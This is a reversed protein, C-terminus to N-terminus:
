QLIYVSEFVKSQLGTLLYKEQILGYFANMQDAVAECGEPVIGYQDKHEVAVIFLKPLNLSFDNLFEDWLAPTAYGCSWLSFVYSYATPSKRGTLFNFRTEGQWIQVTDTPASNSLIIQEEATPIHPIQLTGAQLGTITANISKLSPILAWLLVLMGPLLLHLQFQQINRSRFKKHLSNITWDATHTIFLAVYASFVILYHPYMRTPFIVLFVELFFSIIYIWLFSKNNRTKIESSQRVLRFVSIVLAILLILIFKTGWGNKLLILLYRIQKRMRSLRSLLNSQSNREIYFYNFDIYQTKFASLANKTILFLFALFLIFGMGALFSFLPKGPEKQIWRILLWCGYVFWLAANTPRMLLVAGAMFGLAFNRSTSTSSQEDLILATSIMFCFLTYVETLNGGELPYMLCHILTAFGILVAGSKFSNQLRDVWFFAALVFLVLQILYIGDVSQPSILVGLLNIFYLFPGKHDWSNLYPMGGSLMQQGTYLFVGSDRSPVPHLVPNIDMLSITAALIVLVIVITRITQSSIITSKM